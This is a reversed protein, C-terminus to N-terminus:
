TRQSGTNSDTKNSKEVNNDKIDFVVIFDFRNTGRSMDPIYKKNLKNTESLVGKARFSALTVSFMVGDKMGLDNIIEKKSERSFLFTDIVDDDSIVLSLEYRKKLIAALVEVEKPTLKHLPGTFM